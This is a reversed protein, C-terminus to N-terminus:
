TLAKGQSGPLPVIALTPTPAPAELLYFPYFEYRVNCSPYLVRGGESGNCCWNLDGIAGSLCWRCDSPSLNPTCQALCFVTRFPVIEGRATSAYKKEGVAPKAAEDATKNMIDYLTRMFSAPNSVNDINRLGYRPRTDITSFFSRDSYRLFCEEYWIIAEKSVPCDSPLRQTAVVVCQHCTTLNVDGRCMFLGYVTDGGSSVIANYFDIANNSALSSLLKTRDSQFTSNAAFTQNSYCIHSVYYQAQTNPFLLFTIFFFLLFIKHSSAMVM